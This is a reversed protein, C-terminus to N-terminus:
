RTALSVAAVGNVFASFHFVLILSSLSNALRTGDFSRTGQAGLSIYISTIAASITQTKANRFHPNVLVRTEIKAKGKQEQIGVISISTYLIIPGERGKIRM